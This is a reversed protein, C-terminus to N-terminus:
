VRIWICSKFSTNRRLIDIKNIFDFVIVFVFVNRQFVDFVKEFVDFVIEKFRKNRTYM